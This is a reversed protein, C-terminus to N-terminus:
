VKMGAPPETYGTLLSFIYDEGYPRGKVITSLDPPLAGNNNFRAEQENEYPAPFRDTPRGPRKTVKGTKDPEGWVEVDAALNKVENETFAIESLNRFSIIDM